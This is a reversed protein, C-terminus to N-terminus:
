CGGAAVDACHSRLVNRHQEGVDYSKGLKGLVFIGSPSAVAEASDNRRQAPSRRSPPVRSLYKPSPTIAVKPVGCTEGASQALASAAALSMTSPKSDALASSAAALEGCTRMETPTWKPGAMRPLDARLAPELKCRKAVGDIHRAPQPPSGRDPSGYRRWRHPRRERSAAGQLVTESAHSFSLKRPRAAGISTQTAYRRSREAITRVARGVNLDLNVTM